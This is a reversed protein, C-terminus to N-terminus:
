RRRFANRISAARDTAPAGAASRPQGSRAPASGRGFLQYDQPYLVVHRRPGEGDSATPLGSPELELHLMRRERSTMPPFAFPRGTSQVSAVAAAASARLQQDRNAKFGAADICIRHHEEPDLQLLKAALHEMANLLEGNRDTLLAEDPGSLLVRLAPSAAPDAASELEYTFELGTAARLQDLFRSVTGTDVKSWLRNPDRM